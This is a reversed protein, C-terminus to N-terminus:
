VFDGFYKDIWDQMKADLLDPFMKEIIRIASEWYHAGEVWKQKLVMGTKAGPEYIFRGGAWHGPVFRSDQGKKNTWHGDNVYAAYKVNSGVELTLGSEDLEWVNDDGGKHFSTLLLRTDVVERRIIEDEVIRLFEFGLGELFLALEKKFDGGAAQRLRAFFARFESFDFDIARGSM